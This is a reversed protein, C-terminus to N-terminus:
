YDEKLGAKRAVRKLKQVFEEITKSGQEVKKLEIVEVLENDGSKFKQKLIALFERVILFELSKSELNKMINEKWINVSGRQVYLLVQQVQEEVSIDRIRIRIYLKCAMIFESIKSTDRNFIPPIAVEINLRINSRLAVVEVREEEGTEARGVLLTQLTVIQKQQQKM